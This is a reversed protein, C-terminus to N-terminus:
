IKKVPEKKKIIRNAAGSTLPRESVTERGGHPLPITQM